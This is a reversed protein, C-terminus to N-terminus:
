YIDISHSRIWTERQPCGSLWKAFPQLHRWFIQGGVFEIFETYGPPLTIQSSSIFTWITSISCIYYKRISAVYSSGLLLHTSLVRFLSHQHHESSPSEMINQKIAFTAIGRQMNSGTVLLGSLNKAVVQCFQFRSPFLRPDWLIVSGSRLHWHSEIPLGLAHLTM